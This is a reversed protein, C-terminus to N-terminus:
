PMRYVFISHGIIKAPEYKDLWKYFETPQNFGPVAKGRGGQLFTASVALYDGPKLDSPNREGWWPQFKNGLYYEPMSGGFYNVYIKNIGNEDTWNKLRKLDQGWDLNSDAAYKYGNKPGGVVENFYALFSPYVAIVSIAMQAILVFLLALKFVTYFKHEDKKKRVWSIVQASVLAYIFPFTPLVHRVGINLPSTISTTWYFAVFLIMAISEFNLSVWSLFRKLLSREKLAVDKKRKLLKAAFIILALATLIHLVLPEKLLYVTPFYSPWGLNSVEGMFYTTNGGSARQFVMILGLMYQSVARLAPNEDAMWLAIESPCRKILAPDKCNGLAENTLFEGDALLIHKIDQTQKEIPYNKIHFYYVPTVVLGYGIILILIFGGIYRWSIKLWSDKIIQKPTADFLDKINPSTEQARAIKIIIWAVILVVFLPVLLFLSFKALQALGFVVGATILNLATPKKLWAIFHYIGIFFAAAAAVDTTVFRGHAIFTPSFSFLFLALLAAKKGWLQKTWIFIYIGLILLIFLMPLRGFFIMSETPNGEKYLFDFGFDWQSNTEQTWAKIESPFNIKAGSIKSWAFVSLGALDKILPPHEPNIRMDQKAIYSYGAPLHAVEDMIASDDLMSFYAVGFMFLLLLGALLKSTLNSM